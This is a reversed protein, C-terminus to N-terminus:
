FIHGAVELRESFLLASTIELDNLELSTNSCFADRSCLHGSRRGSVSCTAAENRSQGHGVVNAHYPFAHRLHHSVPEAMTMADSSSSGTGIFTQADSSLPLVPGPGSSAATSIAPTGEASTPKEHEPNVSGERSMSSGTRPAFAPRGVLSVRRPYPYHSNARAALYVVGCM